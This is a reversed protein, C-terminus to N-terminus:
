GRRGARGAGASVSVSASVSSLCVISGGPRDIGGAAGTVVCSRGALRGAVNPTVNPTVM